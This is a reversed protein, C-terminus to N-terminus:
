RHKNFTEEKIDKEKKYSLLDTFATRILGKAQEYARYREGLRTNSDLIHAQPMNRNLVEDFVQEIIKLTQDDNLLIQLRDQQAQNLM